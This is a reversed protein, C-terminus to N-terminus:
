SVLGTGSLRYEGRIQVLLQIVRNRWIQGFPGIELWTGIRKPRKWTARIVKLPM